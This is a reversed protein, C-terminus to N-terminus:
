AVPGLGAASLRRALKIAVLGAIIYVMAWSVYPIAYHGTKALYGAYSLDTFYGSFFYFSGNSIVFAAVAGLVAAVAVPALDARGLASHRRSWWGAFTVAAYAPLLFAYAPTICYDSVGAWTTAAYDIGAALLAFVPFWRWSLLLGLLFFVAISADPLNVASGFHHFRTGIMFAALAIAPLLVSLRKSQSPM